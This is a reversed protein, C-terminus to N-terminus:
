VKLNGTFYMGLLVAVVIGIILYIKWNMGFMKQIGYKVTKFQDRYLRNEIRVKLMFPTVIETDAL